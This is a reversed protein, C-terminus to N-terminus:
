FLNDISPDFDLGKKICITEEITKAISLELPTPAWRLKKLAERKDLAIQNVEYSNNNKFKLLLARGTMGEVFRILDKITIICGSSLNIKDNLFYDTCVIDRMTKTIDYVYVFDRGQDGSGYITIEEGKIAKHILLTLIRNNEIPDSGGIVNGFFLCTYKLGCSRAYYDLYHEVTHKSIGYPSIPRPCDTEKFFDKYDGYRAGGTSTYLFKKVNYRACAELLNLSGIINTKADEIPKEVSKRLLSQAAMHAVITPKFERICKNIHSKKCIDFGEKLDFNFYEINIKKLEKCFIKGIFGSGGTVLIKM